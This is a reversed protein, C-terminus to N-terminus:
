LYEEVIRTVDESQLMKKTLQYGLERYAEFQDEDFFQDATSQDPFKPYSGKYGYIDAPLKDVMTTKIYILKGQKNENPYWVDAIAFGRKALDYKEAFRSKPATGPLLYKIDFEKDFRISVGFDVRVREVANALDGFMFDPDAGGDSIIILNVKRRILEYLALNEFHGGDSLQILNRNENLGRGLVDGVFGPVFFNPPSFLSNGKKPNQTWYGLGINLIGLLSSVLRNRTLGKGSVGASPNIAAGSIAMATALTMGTNDKKLYKGTKIYDTANSGCYLPSLLFSDGGRGQFKATSSDVLIINSNILHYPRRHKRCMSDLGAKNADTAPGWQNDLINKANPMFTEMLRNRYMRHLGVFNLNVVFGFLVTVFCLLFFVAQGIQFKLSFFYAAMLLGYLFCGTVAIASISGLIGSKEKESTAAPKQSRSFDYLGKLIGSLIVTCSTIGYWIDTLIEKVFPLLGILILLIIMKWFLGVWRQVDIGFVYRSESGKNFYSFLSYLLASFALIILLALAIMLAYNFWLKNNYFCGMYLTGELLGTKNIFVMAVTFLSIYFFLAAFISRLIVGFLSLPTLGDGPILYNGHQRIYDLVLNKNTKGREDKNDKNGIDEETRNGINIRGLPFDDEETGVSSGNPFGKELFWTLASGIYGGGSVTSLYDIRSLLSKLEASVLAQMVGLGFSASRIGGGSIALGWFKYGPEEQKGNCIYKKEEKIVDAAKITEHSDSIKSM